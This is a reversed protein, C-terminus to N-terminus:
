DAGNDPHRLREELEAVRRRLLRNKELLEAVRGEPAEATGAPRRGAACMMLPRAGVDVSTEKLRDARLLRLEVGARPGAEVLYRGFAEVGALPRGDVQLLVDGPRIDATHAPSGELVAAVRIGEMEESEDAIAIGLWGLRRSQGGRLRALIPELRRAGLLLSEPVPPGAAAARSHEGLVVGALRGDADFVPGAACGTPARVGLPVL